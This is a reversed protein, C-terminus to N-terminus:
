KSEEKALQWVLMFQDYAKKVAPNTMMKEAEKEMAKIGAVAGDNASGGYLEMDDKKFSKSLAKWLSIQEDTLPTRKPQFKMGEVIAASIEDQAYKGAAIMPAFAPDIDYSYSTSGPKCIVLTVGKYFADMLDPDYEKVPVYSRGVKEYFTKKM